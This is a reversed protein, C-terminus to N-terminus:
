PTTFVAKWSFRASSFNLHRSLRAYIYKFIHQIRQQIHGPIFQGVAFDDLKAVDSAQFYRDATVPIFSGVLYGCVGDFFALYQKIWTFLQPFHLLRQGIFFCLCFVFSTHAYRESSIRM